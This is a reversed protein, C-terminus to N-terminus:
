YTGEIHVNRTEYALFGGFLLLLAKTALIVYLFYPKDSDCKFVQWQVVTKELPGIVTEEVVTNDLTARLPFVLQWAVFICIDVAVFVGVQILLHSDKISTGKAATKDTFVKYVRWTKAFLASLPM